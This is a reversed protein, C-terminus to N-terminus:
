SALEGEQLARFRKLTEVFEKGRVQELNLKKSLDDLVRKEIVKSAGGVTQHLMDSLLEPRRVLEAIELGSDEAIRSVIHEAVGGFFHQLVERLSRIVQEEFERTSSGMLPWRLKVQLVDSNSM